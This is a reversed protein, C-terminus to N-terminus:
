KSQILFGLGIDEINVEAANAVSRNANAKRAAAIANTKPKQPLASKEVKKAQATTLQPVMLFWLRRLEVTKTSKVTVSKSIQGEEQPYVCLESVAPLISTVRSELGKRSTESFGQLKAYEAIQGPLESSKGCFGSTLQLSSRAIQSKVILRDYSADDASM